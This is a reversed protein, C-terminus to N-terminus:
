NNKNLYEWRKLKEENLEDELSYNDIYLRELYGLLIGNVFNEENIYFENNSFRQYFSIIALDSLEQNNIKFDFINYKLFLDKNEFARMGNKMDTISLFEKNSCKFVNFIAKIRLKILHFCNHCLVYKGKHLDIIGKIFETFNLSNDNDIDYKKLFKVASTNYDQDIMNWGWHSFSHEIKKLDDMKVESNDNSILDRKNFFDYGVKEYMTTIDNYFIPDLYDFLYKYYENKPSLNIREEVKNDNLCNNYYDEDVINQLYLKYNLYNQIQNNLQNKEDTHSNANENIRLKYNKNYKEINKIEYKREYSDSSHRLYSKLKQKPVIVPNQSNILSNAQAKEVNMSFNSDKEVLNQSSAFSCTLILILLFFALSSQNNKM